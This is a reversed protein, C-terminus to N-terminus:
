MNKQLGKLSIIINIMPHYINLIFTYIVLLLVPLQMALHKVKLTNLLNCLNKDEFDFADKWKDSRYRTELCLKKINLIIRDYNYPGIVKYQPIVNM